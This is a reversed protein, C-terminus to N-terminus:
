SHIGHTSKLLFTSLQRDDYTWFRPQCNLSVDVYDWGHVNSDDGLIVQDPIKRSGPCRRGSLQRLGPSNCDLGDGSGPFALFAPEPASNINASPNPTKNQIALGDGGDGLWVLLARRSPVQRREWRSTSPPRSGTRWRGQIKGQAEPPLSIRSVDAM